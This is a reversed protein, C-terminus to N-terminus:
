PNRTASAEIMGAGSLAQVWAGVIMIPSFAAAIIPSSAYRPTRHRKAAVVLRDHDPAALPWVRKIGSEQVGGAGIHEFVVVRMESRHHVRGPRDCRAEECKGLQTRHGSAFQQVRKNDPDLSRAADPEGHHRRMVPAASMDRRGAPNEPRRGGAGAQDPEVHPARSPREAMGCRLGRAQDFTKAAHGFAKSDAVGGLVPQGRRQHGLAPKASGLLRDFAPVPKRRPDIAVGASRM